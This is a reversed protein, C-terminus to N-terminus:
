PRGRGPRRRSWRRRCGSSPLACTLPASAPAPTTLAGHPHLSGNWTLAIPGREVPQPRAAGREEAARNGDQAAGHAPHALPVQDDAMELAPPNPTIAQPEIVGSRSAASIAPVWASVLWGNPTLRIVMCGCSSSRIRTQRSAFTPWMTSAPPMGGPVATRATFSPPAFSIQKAGASTSARRSTRERRRRAPSRPSRPRRGYRGPTASRAPAPFGAADGRPAPRRRRRDPGRRPSGPRGPFPRTRRAARCASRRPWWLRDRMRVELLGEDAGVGAVRHGRHLEVLPERHDRHAAQDVCPM